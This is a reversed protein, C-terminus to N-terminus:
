TVKAQHPITSCQQTQCLTQRKLRKGGAQAIPRKGTSFHIARHMTSCGAATVGLRYTVSMAHTPCMYWMTARGYDHPSVGVIAHSYMCMDTVLHSTVGRLALKSDNIGYIRVDIWLSYLPFTKPHELYRHAPRIISNVISHSHLNLCGSVGVPGGCGSHPGPPDGCGAEGGRCSRRVKAAAPRAGARDRVWLSHGSSLATGRCSQSGKKNPARCNRM